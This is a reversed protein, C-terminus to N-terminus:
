RPRPTYSTPTHGWTPHTLRAAAYGVADGAVAALAAGIVLQNDAHALQVIRQGMRGCAGNVGITTKM